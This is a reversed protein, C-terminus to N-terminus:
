KRQPQTLPVFSSASSFFFVLLFPRVRTWCSLPVPSFPNVNQNTRPLLNMLPVLKVRLDKVVPCDITNRPSRPQRTWLSLWIAPGIEIGAGEASKETSKVEARHRWSPTRRRRGECRSSETPREQLEHNISFSLHGKGGKGRGLDGRTGSPCGACRGQPGSAQAERAYTGVVCTRVSRGVYFTRGHRRRQTFWLLVRRESVRERESGEWTQVRETLLNAARFKRTPPNWLCVVWLDPFLIM